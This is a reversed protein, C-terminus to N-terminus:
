LIGREILEAVIKDTLENDHELQELTPEDSPDYNLWKNMDAAIRDETLEYVTRFINGDYRYSVRESCESEEEGQSKLVVEEENDLITVDYMKNPLLVISVKPQPSDFLMKKM